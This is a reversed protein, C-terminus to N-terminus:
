IALAAKIQTLAVAEKETVKEGTGLLGSGAANAVVEGVSYIFEKYEKIEEETAKGQVITIAENIATIAKEVAMGEKVEEAKLTLNEPKYTGDKLAQKSFAAQIITNNPYKMSSDAIASSLAIVETVSSVIGLDVLSIAMGTLFPATTIKILEETTYIENM